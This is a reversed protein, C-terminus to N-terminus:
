AILNLEIAKKVLSAANKADLKKMLNYRHASVTKESINLENAIMKNSKGETIHKLIEKERKTITSADSNKAESVSTEFLSNTLINSITSSLYSNGKYVQKIAEVLENENADKSVYANAGLQITDLIKNKETHMSLVVIKINKDKQRIAKILDLGSESGISLDTVIVDPDKTKYSSIADTMNQSYGVVQINEYENFLLELGRLVVKHDDVLFLKISMINSQLQLKQEKTKILTLTFIEM